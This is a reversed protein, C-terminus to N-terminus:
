KNLRLVLEYHERESGTRKSPPYVTATIDVRGGGGTADSSVANMVRSCDEAQKNAEPTFNSRRAVVEFGSDKLLQHLEPCTVAEMGLDWVQEMYPCAFVLCYDPHLTEYDSALRWGPQSHLQQAAERLYPASEKGNVHIGMTLTSALEAAAALALLVGASWLLARMPKGKARPAPRRFPYDSM